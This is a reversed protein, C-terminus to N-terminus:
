CNLQFYQKLCHIELDNLKQDCYNITPNSPVDYIIPSQPFNKKIGIRRSNGKSTIILPNKKVEFHLISNIEKVWKETRIVKVPNFYTRNEKQYNM